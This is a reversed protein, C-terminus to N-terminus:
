HTVAWNTGITYDKIDDNFYSGSLPCKLGLEEGVKRLARSKCEAVWLATEMRNPTETQWEDHVLNVPFVPGKHSPKIEAGDPIIISSRKSLQLREADTRTGDEIEKLWKLTALKMVIAEGSQLYGSMM